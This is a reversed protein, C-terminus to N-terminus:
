PQETFTRQLTSKAAPNHNIGHFLTALHNKRSPFISYEQKRSSYEKMQALIPSKARGRMADGGDLVSTRNGPTKSGFRTMRPEFVGPALVPLLSFSSIHTNAVTESLVRLIAWLTQATRRFRWRLQTSFIYPRPQGHGFLLFKQVVCRRGAHM